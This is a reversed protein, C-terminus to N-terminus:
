EDFSSLYLELNQNTALGLKNKLKTKYVRITGPAMNTLQAIEKSNLNLRFYSSLLLDLDSISPHKDRIKSFFRTNELETEAKQAWHKSDIQLLNTVNMQLEKIVSEIDTNKKRRIEKLKELFARETEKKLNLNIALSTIKEQKLRVENELIKRKNLEIQEKQLSILRNKRERKVKGRYIIIFIATLLTFIVVLFSNTRRKSNLKANLLNNKVLYQNRINNVSNKYLIANLKEVSHAISDRLFENKKIYRNGYKQIEPLSQKKLYFDFLIKTYVISKSSHQLDSEIKKLLIVTESLSKSDGNKEYLQILERFPMYVEDSILNNEVYYNIEEKLLPLAETYKKQKLYNSGLNGQVIIKFLSIEKNKPGSNLIQLAKQIYQNSANLDNLKMKCLSINNYMSAKFLIENEPSVQEAKRYYAISKTYEKKNYEILGLLEYTSVILDNQNNKRSLKLAKLAFPAATLYSNSHVLLLALHFNAKAAINQNDADANEIVRILNEIQRDNTQSGYDEFARIYYIQLKHKLKGTKQFLAQEEQLLKDLQEPDKRESIAKDITAFDACFADFSTFVVLWFIVSILHLKSM